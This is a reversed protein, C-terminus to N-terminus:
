FRVAFFDTDSPAAVPPRKSVVRPVPPTSSSRSDSAATRQTSHPLDLSGIPKFDLGGIRGSSSGSGNGSGSSSSSSSSGAANSGTGISSSGGGMVLSSSSPAFDQASNSRSSSLSISNSYGVQPSSEPLDTWDEEWTEENMGSEVDFNDEKQGLKSYEVQSAVEGASSRQKTLCDRVSLLIFIICVVVAFYVGKYFASPSTWSSAVIDAEEDATSTSSADGTGSQSDKDGGTETGTEGGTGAGTKKDTGAGAGSGTEDESDTGAGTKAGEEKSKGDSSTADDAKGSTPKNSANETGGSSKEVTSGPTAEPDVLTIEDDTDTPKSTTTGSPKIVPLTTPATIAVNTDTDTPKSTTTGGPAIVPATTPISDSPDAENSGTNGDDMDQDAGSDSTKTDEQKANIETVGDSPFSRYQLVEFVEKNTNEVNQSKLKKSQVSESVGIYKKSAISHSTKLTFTDSQGATGKDSSDHTNQSSIESYGVPSLISLANSDEFIPESQSSEVSRSNSHANNHEFSTVFFNTEGLMYLPNM